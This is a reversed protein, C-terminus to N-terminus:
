SIGDFIQSGCKVLGYIRNSSSMPNTVTTSQLINSKRKGGVGRIELSSQFSHARSEALFNQRKKLRQLWILSSIIREPSNALQRLYAFMPGKSGHREPDYGSIRVFDASKSIERDWRLPFSRLILKDQSCGLRIRLNFVPNAKFEIYTKIVYRANSSFGDNTDEIVHCLYTVTNNICQFRLGTFNPKKLLGKLTILALASPAIV